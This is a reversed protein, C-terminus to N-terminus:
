SAKATRVPYQAAEQSFRVSNSEQRLHMKNQMRARKKGPNQMHVNNQQSGRCARTVQEACNTKKPKRALPRTDSRRLMQRAASSCARKNEAKVSTQKASSNKIAPTWSNM